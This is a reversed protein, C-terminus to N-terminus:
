WYVGPSILAAGLCFKNKKQMYHVKLGRLFDPPRSVPPSSILSGEVKPRLVIKGWLFVYKYGCVCVCACM